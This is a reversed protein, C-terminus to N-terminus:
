AKGGKMQANFLVAGLLVTVIIGFAAIEAIGQILACLTTIACIIFLGQKM